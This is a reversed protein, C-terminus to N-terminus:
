GEGSIQVQQYYVAGSGVGIASLNVSKKVQAGTNETYATLIGSTNADGVLIPQDYGNPSYLSTIEVVKVHSLDWNSDNAGSITVYDGGNFPSERGEHLYVKTQAANTSDTSISVVTSSARKLSLGAATGSPVAYDTLAADAGGTTIAVFADVNNAFIRLTDSQISFADGVTATNGCDISSGSGVPNHAM